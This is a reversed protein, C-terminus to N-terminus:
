IRFCSCLENDPNIKTAGTIALFLKKDPYRIIEKALDPSDDIYIDYDLKLKETPSVLGLCKINYHEDKRFRGHLYLWEETFFLSEETNCTLFEVKRNLFSVIAWLVTLTNDDYPELALKLRTGSILNFAEWFREKQGIKCWFDWEKIDKNEHDTGYKYNILLNIIDNTRFLVGDMDFAIKKKDDM